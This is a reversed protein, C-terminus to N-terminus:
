KVCVGVTVAHLVFILVTKVTPHRINISYQFDNMLLVWVETNVKLKLCTDQGCFLVLALGMEKEPCKQPCFM